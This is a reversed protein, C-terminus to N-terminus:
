LFTNSIEQARASKFYLNSDKEVECKASRSSNFESFKTDKLVFYELKDQRAQFKWHYIFNEAFSKLM